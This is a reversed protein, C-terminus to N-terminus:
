SLWGQDKASQFMHCIEDREEHTVDPHWIDILLVVRQRRTDDLSMINTTPELNNANNNGDHISHDNWVEHEYSDDLVLSKGAYWERITKGVRIGCIPKKTVSAINHPLSQHEQDQQQPHPLTESPVYIPIHIRLRFNIPSTHALIHTQEHLNSFFVYGFPINELLQNQLLPNNTTKTTANPDHQKHRLADIISATLPFHQQFSSPHSTSMETAATATKPITGKTMYAYWDWKGGEKLLDMNHENSANSSGASSSSSSSQSLPRDRLLDNGSKHEDNTLINKKQKVFTTKIDNSQQQLSSVHRFNNEYETRITEYNSDLYDVIATITPDGYAIRNRINRTEAEEEQQVPQQQTWFPLSRLGPIYLLTPQPRSRMSHSTRLMAPGKLAEATFRVYETASPPVTKTTTNDIPHLQTADSTATANPGDTVVNSTATTSLAAATTVVTTLTHAANCCSSRLYVNHLSGHFLLQKMGPLTEYVVVRNTL